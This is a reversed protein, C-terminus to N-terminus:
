STLAEQFASKTTLCFLCPRNGSPGSLGYCTCLFGYDGFMLVHITRGEWKQRQLAMVQDSYPLFTTALNAATDKAAFILFPVPNKVLNPHHTNGLQFSLKFSGGGHDGGLKIWVEAQSKETHWCLSEVRKHQTIYHLVREPISPFRVMPKLSISGSKDALPVEEAILETPLATKAQQRMVAESELLVGFSSLRQRLKRLRYWPLHLDTKVALTTGHRTSVACTLGADKLLLDQEKKHLRKM